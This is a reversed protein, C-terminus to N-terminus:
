WLGTQSIKKSIRNASVLLVLGIVAQFLEVATAYSFDSGLLGRRYVYTSIVDATEYTSGNYLLIIKDYGIAMLRGIALILMISITPSIEPLTIHILQKWRNAGDIKAADYLEEDVATLAALYIISGWGISQWIGSTIFITRFWEPKMMFQIPEGGFWVIIQNVLGDMTLFNVIMGCVVVTSIFHPLYSVSQAFRKLGKNKLENLLLALIIPAPFAWFIEYINILLTNRVLKWFYPDNLFKHFHIFGIWPSATIGKVINYDKFAIIIGYMPWYHFLIYYCFPLFFIVYLYKSKKVNRLFPSRKSRPTLTAQQVNSQHIFIGGSLSQNIPAAGAACAAAKTIGM